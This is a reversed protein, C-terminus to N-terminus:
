TLYTLQHRIDKLHGVQLKRLKETNTGFRPATGRPERHGPGQLLTPKAIVQGRDLRDRPEIRVVTVLRVTPYPIEGGVSAAIPIRRPEVAPRCSGSVVAKPM